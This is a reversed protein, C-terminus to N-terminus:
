KYWQSQEEWMRSYLNNGQLLEDHSGELAIRGHQLVIIRDALRASGLRHSIMIVSKGRAIENFQNYAEYEAKPDLAATPEDLILLEPDSMLMRSLAIRQWQGGSLGVGGDLTHGIPSDLGNTLEAALESVGGLKAARAVKTYDPTLKDEGGFSAPDGIGISQGLSFEFNHFDQFVGIVKNRLQGPDIDAYKMGDVQVHGSTPEYLGLLLRVITSKGAGNEGVLAVREGPRIHLSLRDLILRDDGPYCFSVEEMAFGTQVSAPFPLRGAQRQQPRAEMFERVFRVHVLSELLQSLVSSIPSSSLTGVAQFLAVFLGPTLKHNLLLSALYIALGIHVLLAPLQVPIAYLQIKKQQRLLEGRLKYRYAKWLKVLPAALGFVRVEKQEARGTVVNNFYAVKRQEETQGYTLEMWLKAGRFEFMSPPVFLVLLLAPLWPSIVAFMLAVAILSVLIQMFGLFERVVYMMKSGPGESRELRDYTQSDEYYALPLSAAKKLREQGLTFELKQRLRMEMPTRIRWLLESALLQTGFFAAVWPVIAGFGGQASGASNLVADILHQIVYLSVAPGLGEALYIVALCCAFWPARKWTQAITWRLERGNARVATTIGSVDTWNLHM